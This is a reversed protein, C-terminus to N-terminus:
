KEGEFRILWDRIPVYGCARANTPVDHNRRAADVIRKRADTRNKAYITEGGIRGIEDSPNRRDFVRFKFPKLGPEFDDLSM